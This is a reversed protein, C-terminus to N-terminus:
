STSARRTSPSRCCTSSLSTLCLLSDRTLLRILFSKLALKRVQSATEMASNRKGVILVSQNRYHAPDRQMTGYTEFGEAGEVDLPTEQGGLGTSIILTRCRLVTGDTAALVFRYGDSDSDSDSRGDDSSGTSSSSSSSSSSSGDAGVAAAAVVTANSSAATTQAALRRV